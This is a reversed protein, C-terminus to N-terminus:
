LSQPGSTRHSLPLRGGDLIAQAWLIHGTSRAFDRHSRHENPQARCPRETRSHRLRLPPRLLFTRHNHVQCVLAGPEVILKTLMLWFSKISPADSTLVTISPM